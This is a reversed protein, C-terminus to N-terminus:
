KFKDRLSTILNLAKTYNNDKIGNAFIFSLVGKKTKAVLQVVKKKKPTLAIQADFELNSLKKKSNFPSIVTNYSEQNGFYYISFEPLVGNKYECFSVDYPAEFPLKGVTASKFNVGLIEEVEKKNVKKCGMDLAFSNALLFGSLISLLVIKM